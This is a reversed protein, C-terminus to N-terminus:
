FGPMRVLKQPQFRGTVICAAAQLVIESFLMWKIEVPAHKAAHEFAALEGAFSSDAGTVVHHWDHVARFKANQFGELFPHDNNAISILLEGTSRLNALMEPLDLDQPTFRVLVPIARFEADIWANLMALERDTPIQPAGDIFARALKGAVAATPLMQVLNM